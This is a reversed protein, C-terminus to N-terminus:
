PSTDINRRMAGITRFWGFVLKEDRLESDRPICSSYVDHGLGIGDARWWSRSLVVGSLGKGKARENGVLHIRVDRYLRQGCRM